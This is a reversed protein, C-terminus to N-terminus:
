RVDAAPIDGKGFMNSACIQNCSRRGSVGGDDILRPFKNHFLGSVPIGQNDACAGAQTRRQRPQKGAFADLDRKGRAADFLEARKAGLGACAGKGAIGCVIVLDSAQEAKHFAFDSRRVDDDVVGTCPSAAREEFQNRGLHLVGDGHAREATEQHSLM